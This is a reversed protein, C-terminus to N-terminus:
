FDPSFQGCKRQAECRFRPYRSPCQVLGLVCYATRATALSRLDKVKARDRSDKQQMNSATSLNRLGIGGGPLLKSHHPENWSKCLRLPHRHDNVIVPVKDGIEARPPDGNCTVELGSKEEMNVM